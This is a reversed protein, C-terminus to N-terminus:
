TTSPASFLLVTTYGDKTYPWFLHNNPQGRGVSGTKVGSRFLPPNKKMKKENKEKKGWKTRRKKM